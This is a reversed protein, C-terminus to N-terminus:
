WLKVTQWKGDSWEQIFHHEEPSSLPNKNAQAQLKKAQEFTYDERISYVADTDNSWM